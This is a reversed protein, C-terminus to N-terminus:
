WDEVTRTSVVNESRLMDSYEETTMGEGWDNSFNAFIAKTEKKSMRVNKMSKVLKTILDIKVERPLTGLMDMYIDSVNITGVM